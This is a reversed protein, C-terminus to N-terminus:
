ELSKGASDIKLSRMLGNQLVQSFNIGEREAIENLWSPISLTKKVAKSCFRKRYYMTDCGIVAIVGKKPVAIKRIDGPKPIEANSDELGYIFLALADEAMNFAEEQTAGSTNCGVLDPFEVSYGCDDKTIIAPYYYKSKM